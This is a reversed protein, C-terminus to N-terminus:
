HVSANQHNVLAGLWADVQLSGDIAIEVIM